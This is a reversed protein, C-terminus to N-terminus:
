SGNLYREWFSSKRITSLTQRVRVGSIGKYEGISDIDLGLLLHYIIDKEFDSFQKITRQLDESLPNILLQFISHKLEEVDDLRIRELELCLDYTPTGSLYLIWLEQREDNDATLNNIM